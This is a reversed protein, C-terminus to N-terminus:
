KQILEELTYRKKYEYGNAFGQLFCYSIIHLIDKNKNVFDKNKGIWEVLIKEEDSLFDSALLIDKYDYKLKNLKSDVVEISCTNEQTSDFFIKFNTNVVILKNGSKDFVPMGTKLKIAEEFEM